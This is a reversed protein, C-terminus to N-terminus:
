LASYSKMQRMKVYFHTILDNSIPLNEDRFSRTVQWPTGIQHTAASLAVATAGSYQAIVFKMVALEDETFTGHWKRAEPISPILQSRHHRVARYLSDVIPGNQYAMVQEDLLPSGHAGLMHGHAIYTLKLLKMPTAGPRSSEKLADLLHQAVALSKYGM